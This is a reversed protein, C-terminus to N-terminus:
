KQLEYAQINERNLIQVGPVYVVWEGGQAAYAAEKNLVERAHNWAFLVAADPKTKAFHEPAVIPIHVGPSYKGQKLPTSDCISEILDTGIGCYNLVTTSKSTAGYGMVRKGRQKLDRLMLLLSGRVSESRIKFMEYTSTLHFKARHEKEYFERFRASIKKEGRKAVYYRMSGGHTSLPEVDFIELGHIALMYTAAVVSFMFVHEDYIQDFAVKDLMDGLYPDEFVFVGGDRLLMRVGELVPHIDAIHCMVNAALILDCPGDERYISAAVNDDFFVNLSRIGRAFAMDCANQAPELGLHRIGKEKFYGLLTGDNSGIEIVFPRASPLFERTVKEALACFHRQMGESSGTFFPYGSHFMAEKVPREVLQVLFCEPCFAAKMSYFLEQPFQDQSLFGNGKPMKGFDMFVDVQANCVRCVAM